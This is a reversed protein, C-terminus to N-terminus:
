HNLVNIIGAFGSYFKKINFLESTQTPTARVIFESLIDGNPAVELVTGSPGICVLTNGNKLRQAGSVYSAYYQRGLDCDWVVDTAGLVTEDSYEIEVVSSYPRQFMNGNNFILIRNNEIWEVDHQNYLVREGTGNVTQPNGWRYMLDGKETEAEQSSISHDIIWIESFNHVSLVIQDLEANYDISNIHTWDSASSSFFNINIKGPNQEIMGYNKKSSDYDQVLHDWIHWEWVISNTTPDVEIVHDAWIQTNNFENANIGQEEAEEISFKEWAVILVNGNPLVEIDHHSMKYFDAYYFSWVENADPDYEAVRGTAGGSSSFGYANSTIESRIINGNDPLYVSYGTHNTEWLHVIYGSQDVLYINKNGMPSFLYYGGEDIEGSNGTGSNGSGDDVTWARPLDNNTTENSANKSTNGSDTGGSGFDARGCAVSLVFILIVLM